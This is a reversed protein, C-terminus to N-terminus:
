AGDLRARLSPSVWTEGALVCRIAALLTESMERKTVYGNAGARFAREAYVPGEHMTLVLIPLDRHGARIDKVMALGDGEGLSLDAIVLDPSFTAVAALGAQRTAAEACVTLDGESEILANLGRRVLPHDDVILIRQTTPV